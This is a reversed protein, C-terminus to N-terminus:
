RTGSATSSNMERCPKYLRAHDVARLGLAEDRFPERLLPALVRAAHRRHGNLQCPTEASRGAGGLDGAQQVVVAALERIHLRQGGGRAVPDDYAWDLRPTGLLYRCPGTAAASSPAAPRSAAM